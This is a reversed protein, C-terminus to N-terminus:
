RDPCISHELVELSGGIGTLDNHLPGHGALTFCLKGAIILMHWIQFILKPFIFTLSVPLHLRNSRLPSSESRSLWLCTEYHITSYLLDGQLIKQAKDHDRERCYGKASLFM